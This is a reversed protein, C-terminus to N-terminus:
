DSFPMPPPMVNCPPWLKPANDPPTTFIFPPSASKPSPPDTEKLPPRERCPVAAPAKVAEPPVEANPCPPSMRSLAPDERSSFPPATDIKLPEDAFPPDPETRMADVYELLLDPSAIRLVPFLKCFSAPEIRMSDPEENACDEFPPDMWIDAPDPALPPDKEMVEPCESSNERLELNPDSIDDSDRNLKLVKSEGFSLLASM